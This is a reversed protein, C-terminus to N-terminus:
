RQPAISGTAAPEAGPVVQDIMAGVPDTQPPPLQPPREPLRSFDGNQHATMPQLQLHRRALEELRAPTQLKAWEARLVAIAEREKRLESRLKGVQEAQLTSDFKIKYVVAAALILAGIVMLHIFRM